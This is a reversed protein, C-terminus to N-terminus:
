EFHFTVVRGFDPVWGPNRDLGALRVPISIDEMDMVLDVHTSTVYLRGPYALLSEALLRDEGPALSLARRLCSCIYPLVAGLWRALHPNLGALLPSALEAIPAQHSPRRSLSTGDEEDVFKQLVARAQAKPQDKNRSVDALLFGLDSWLRVKGRRSSWQFVRDSSVSVATWWARPLRYSDAGPFGVGPLTGPERGDLEALAVWLPDAACGEGAKGWLARGLLDLVGWAGVHTALGWTEEFCAPLDLHQMLNILYLVGGLQTEVGEDPLPTPEEFVIDAKADPSAKAQYSRDPLPKAGRNASRAGADPGVEVEPSWQSSARAQGRQGDDGRTQSPKIKVPPGSLPLPVNGKVAKRTEQAGAEGEDAHPAPHAVHEAPRPIETALPSSGDARDPEPDSPPSAEHAQWWARLEQHFTRSRATAPERYLALGVGLLCRRERGLDPPALRPALWREWPAQGSPSPVFRAKEPAPPALISRLDPVNHASEVASLVQVAQPPSLAAAVATVQGWTVLYHLAAPVYHAERCLLAVLAEREGSPLSRLIARWWWHGDAQGRSMDLALCALLEGRDAFRVAEASAPVYGRSPCVARRYFDALANQAAREWAPDVRVARRHPALRGPMPDEMRRVILVASPPVGVPRLEARQLINVLRARYRVEIQNVGRVRLTNVRAHGDGDM